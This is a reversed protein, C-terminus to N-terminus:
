RLRRPFDPRRLRSYPNLRFRIETVSSLLRMVPLLFHVSGYTRMPPLRTAVAVKVRKCSEPLFYMVGSFSVSSKEREEGTVM